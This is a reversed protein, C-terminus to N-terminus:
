EKPLYRLALTPDVGAKAAYDAIEYRMQRVHTKADESYAGDIKLYEVMERTLKCIFIEPEFTKRPPYTPVHQALVAMVYHEVMVFVDNENDFTPAMHMARAANTPLDDVRACIEARYIKHLAAFDQSVGILYDSYWSM